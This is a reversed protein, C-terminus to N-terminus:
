ARSTAHRTAPLPQGAAHSVVLTAHTVLAPTTMTDTWVSAAIATPKGTFPLIARRVTQHPEETVHIVHPTVHQSCVFLTM